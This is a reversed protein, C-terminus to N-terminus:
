GTSGRSLMRLFTQQLRLIRSRVDGFIEPTLNFREYHEIMYGCISILERAVPVLEAAEHELRFELLAVLGNIIGSDGIAEKSQIYRIAAHVYYRFAVPGMWMLDEQYVLSNERFLAEAQEVTQGLFHECASREDLSDHVNIDERVPITMACNIHAFTGDHHFVSILQAQPWIFVVDGDFIFGPQAAIFQCLGEGRFFLPERVTIPFSDDTILIVESAPISVESFVRDFLEMRSYLGPGCDHEEWRPIVGQQTAAGASEAYHLVASPTICSRAHTILERTIPLLSWVAEYARRWGPLIVKTEIMM